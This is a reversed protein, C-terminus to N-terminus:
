AHRLAQAGDHPPATVTALPSSRELRDRAQALEDILRDMASLFDARSAHPEATFLAASHEAIAWEGALRAWRRADCYAVLALRGLDGNRRAHRLDALLDDLCLELTMAATMNCHLM